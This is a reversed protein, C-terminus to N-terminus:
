ARVRGASDRPRGRGGNRRALARSCISLKNEGFKISV